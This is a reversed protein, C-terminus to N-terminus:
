KLGPNLKYKTQIPWILPQKKVRRAFCYLSVEDPLSYRSTYKAPPIEVLEGKREFLMGEIEFGNQSYFDYLSTPSFCWFGHNVMTVPPTHFIVGGEKVANAANKVAQGVNFCHETTGPDIVLDYEGLDQPENLDLIEEQGRSAVIDVYRVSKAGMLTFLETTEPLDYKKGHWGGFKSRKTVEYPCEEFPILIDPYSLCLVDGAMNPILLEMGTDKLGM